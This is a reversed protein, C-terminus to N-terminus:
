RPAPVDTLTVRNARPVEVVESNHAIATIQAVDNSGFSWLTRRADNLPAIATPSCSKQRQLRRGCRFTQSFVAAKAGSAMTLSSRPPQVAGRAIRAARWLPRCPVCYTSDSVKAGAGEAANIIEEPASRMTGWGSGREYVPPRVPASARHPRGKTKEIGRSQGGRWDGPRLRTSTRL